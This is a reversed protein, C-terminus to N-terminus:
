RATLLSAPTNSTQRQWGIKSFELHVPQGFLQKRCLFATIIVASGIVALSLYILTETM